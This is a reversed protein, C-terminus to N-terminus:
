GTVGTSCIVGAISFGTAGGLSTVNFRLHRGTAGSWTTTYSGVASFTLTAYTSPGVFGSTSGGQITVTASTATGTISTVHIIAFGGDAGTTGTDYGQQAGTASVATLPLAVGRRFVDSAAWKGTITMLEKVPMNVNMAEAYTDAVVYGIPITASVGLIVSVDADGTGLRDYMEPELSGAAAGTMYGNHAITAMSTGPETVETDSNLVPYDLVGVAANIEVSSSSGSFDFEDVFIRVDSGKTPM